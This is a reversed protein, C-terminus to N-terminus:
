TRKEIEAIRGSWKEIAAVLESVVIPKSVYDDMGSALYSERDGKMAHATMAIIPIDHNRVASSEDRVIRTAEIGDMEPMQIDMLVLDYAKKELAEIAEGGHSVADVRYGEKQILKMAVKQNVLNDEVLLIRIKKRDPLDKGDGDNRDGEGPPQDQEDGATRLLCESLQKNKIPKALQGAFGSESLSEADCQASRPVMMVLRTDDLSKDEGIRKGLTMGNMDPMDSDVIAADYPKGEAAASRLKDFANQGDHATDCDCRWSRLIKTLAIRSTENDEVVLVRRKELRSDPGSPKSWAKIQKCLLTTFWFTAGEGEVSDAGIEGHMMEAFRKSIALGLGTGGFRRTTSADEQTFADFLTDRKRPSFGIGTDAVTFRLVVDHVDEFDVSVQIAVEGKSTFKVANGVLNLLIQKLRGPDGRLATPVGPEIFSVYELGKEEAKLTLVDAVDDIVTNIDFNIKELDLKGAEIKTFDLIDNIVGLLSHSSNKVTETFDRQEDNLDTDLLLSTMGTIGNLPTRIEHSMNALFESKARNASEAEVALRRTEDIANELERNATDMREMALRLAAAGREHQIASGFIATATKLSDIEAAFWDREIKCDEFEITGWWEGNVFVPVALVSLVDDAVCRDREEASFESRRGHIVEGGGLIEGWRNSGETQFYVERWWPDNKMSAIRLATWEHRRVATLAGGAMPRNELICVRSVGTAKGLRELIESITHQWSGTKLFKRAAFAVAQMIRDKRRLADETIKRESIDHFTGSARLPKREDDREVIKGRAFIWKWDGSRTRLRHESQFFPTEGSLHDKMASMVRVKDNPHIREQWSGIRPAFEDPDFGLMGACRPNFFAADSQIDWDWLGLDAGELALDMRQESKLLAREASKRETVDQVLSAIGIVKGSENVLPTNYWECVISQGSKTRNRATSRVRGTRNLLDHVLQDVRNQSKEELILSFASRGLAEEKSFGFIREASPNWAQVELNTTWEIYALPTQEIHLALRQESDRLARQMRHRRSIDRVVALLAKRGEWNLTSLQVECPFEFGDPRRHTWEFSCRGKEFASRIFQQALPESDFGNPQLAPSFQSPKRGCFEDRDSLGFTKLTASNCDFFGREDLLMVSDSTSEFLSRFKKESETLAKRLSELDKANDTRAGCDENYRSQDKGM